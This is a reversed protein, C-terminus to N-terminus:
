GKVKVLLRSEREGVTPLRRGPWLWNWRGLLTAMAPVLLPQVIFTDILVGASIAFFSEAIDLVPSAVAWSFSAAMVLGCPSVVGGTLTVAAAIGQCQGLQAIEERIRAMTLINFDEGLAVLSIFAFVPVLYFFPESPIEHYLLNTLGIATGTSLAITALPSLPATLSRLLLALIAYIALCVLPV